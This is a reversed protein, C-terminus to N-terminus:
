GDDDSPENSACNLDLMPHESCFCGCGTECEVDLYGNEALWQELCDFHAIHGCNACGKYLGDVAENCISCPVRLRTRKCFGCQWKALAGVSNRQALKGCTPCRIVFELGALGSEAKTDPELLSRDLGLPAQLTRPMESGAYTTSSGYKLLECRAVPMDWINLLHAYASRYARLKEPAIGSLLLTSERVGGALLNQDKLLVDVVLVDEDADMETISDDDGTLDNTLFSNPRIRENANLIVDRGWTIATTTPASSSLLPQEKIRDTPSTSALLTFSRTFSATISSGFSTSSRREQDPPQMETNIDPLSSRSVRSTLAFVNGVVAFFDDPAIETNHSKSSAPNALLTPGLVVPKKISSQAADLNLKSWAAELSAFYDVPLATTKM